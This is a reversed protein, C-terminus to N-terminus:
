AGTDYGGTDYGTGGPFQGDTTEDLLDAVTDFVESNSTESIEAVGDAGVTLGTGDVGDFWAHPQLTFVVEMIEGDPVVLADSEAEFVEASNFVFRIPVGTLTGELVIAPQEGDDWLEVGLYPSDYAGPELGIAVLNGTGSLADVAVHQEETVSLSGSPGEADFVIEGVQVVLSDVALHSSRMSSPVQIRATVGESAADGGEDRGGVCATVVSIAALVVPIGLTYYRM